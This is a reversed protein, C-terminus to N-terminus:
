EYHKYSAFLINIGIFILATLSSTGSAALIDKSSSESERNPATVNAHANAAKLELLLM